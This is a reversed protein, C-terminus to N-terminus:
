RLDDEATIKYTKPDIHFEYILKDLLKVEIGTLGTKEIIPKFILDKDSFDKDFTNFRKKDKKITELLSKLKKKDVKVSDDQGFSIITVLLLGIILLQRM